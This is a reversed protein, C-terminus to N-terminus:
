EVGGSAVGGATSVAAARSLVARPMGASKAETKM